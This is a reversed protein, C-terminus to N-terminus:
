KGEAILESEWVYSLMGDCWMIQYDIASLEDDVACTIVGTVCDHMPGDVLRSYLVLDGVRFRGHTM